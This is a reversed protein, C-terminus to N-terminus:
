VVLNGAADFDFLFDVGEFDFVASGDEGEEGLIGVFHVGGEVVAQLIELASVM